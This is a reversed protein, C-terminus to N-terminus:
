RPAELLAEGRAEVTSWTPDLGPAALRAAVAAEGPAPRLDWLLAPREGHWRVAFSLHGRPTPLDHVDVGQGRWGEPVVPLLALGDDTEHVLADLALGVLEAGQAPDAPAGPTRAWGWTPSAVDLWAQVDALHAGPRPGPPTTGRPAGGLAEALADDGVVDRTREVAAVWAARAEPDRRTRRSLVRAAGPRETVEALVAVAEDAIGLRALGAALQAAAVFTLDGSAQAWLLSSRRIAAVAEVLREDPVEIRAGRDAQATWGRVVADAEPLPESAVGGGGLPLRVRLSARHPLPVVVAIAAGGPGEARVPEELREGAAGATVVDRLPAVGAADAAVRNPEKPLVVVPVGDVLVEAGALAVQRPGDSSGGAPVVVLALAVPVPSTNEVEVVVTPGGPGPVAWTRHVADGSPIRMATEVVPAGGVLHQRVAREETPVHWRDDAGVWWDLVWGAHVPGVRGVDDVLALHPSGVTGVATSGAASPPTPAAPTEDVAAAGSRGIM